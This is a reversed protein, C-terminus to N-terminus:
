GSVILGAGTFLDRRAARLVLVMMANPALSCPQAHAAGSIIFPQRADIYRRCRIRCHILTVRTEPPLIFVPDSPMIAVPALRQTAGGGDGAARRPPLRPVVQHRM